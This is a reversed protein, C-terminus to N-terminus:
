LALFPSMTNLEFDEGAHWVAEQSIAKGESNKGNRFLTFEWLEYEKM